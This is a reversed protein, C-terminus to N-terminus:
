RTVSQSPAQIEPWAKRVHCEGDATEEFLSVTAGPQSGYDGVFDLYKQDATEYETWQGKVRPGDKRFQVTVSFTPPIDVGVDIM